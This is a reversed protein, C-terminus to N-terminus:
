GELAFAFRTMVDLRAGTFYLTVKLFRLAVDPETKLMREFNSRDLRWLIADTDVTLTQSRPKEGFLGLEGIFTGPLITEISTHCPIGKPPHDLNRDNDAFNIVSKLVGQEVLLLSDAPDGKSWVLKTGPITIREFYKSLAFCFEQQDTVAIDAFAQMLLPIPQEANSLHQPATMSTEVAENLQNMRPSSALLLAQEKVAPNDIDKREARRSKRFREQQLYYAQLLVNECWELAENLNEFVQLYEDADDCWIGVSRVAKGEDSSASVGSLVMYIGRARLLRRIRIFAEAASFDLGQVTTFDLILFRIPNAEWQRNALLGKIAKEVSGITGFFMYGQLKMICIQDAVQSLFKQQRRFRRVTSRLASGRVVLRLVGRRSNMVVFFVCALVIGVFIGEVFGLAAMLVIIACITVYEFQHVVAFTDVLAEKLLDLGLHFILAGVVMVPIYGVIWPGVFYIILTAFALMVGAVRSDGGSKIFLLSNTYVLYNQVSGAFGSLMNSIGHAVLERNTDVNDENTSVGLAPVNIPVHLIGFFTLALMAPITEALAKWNTARLDYHTYFRWFPADGRPLPFVWGDARLQGIDWGVIGVLVWFVVPIAMFFSPVLLPHNWRKQMARLILALGFPTSWLALKHPDLFLERFTGATYTLPEDLRASVELGTAVLFWGVGGICGVLIHRPFFGILSGLKFAGLVLFVLGTLVTSIAFAMITTAIVEHPRDPGITSTIQDAIIHLFPVVEIMMSGNGGKFVSGGCSYVMQSIFCSVFFMSIGDPGFDTFIPNSLPFTIMSIADLLNLLLGLIVAPIYGIPRILLESCWDRASMSRMQQVMYSLRKTPSVDTTDAHALLTASSSDSSPPLPQQHDPDDEMGPLVPFRDFFDKWFQKRQGPSISLGDPETAPHITSRPEATPFTAHLEKRPHILPTTETPPATPPSSPTESTSAEHKKASSSSFLLSLNSFPSVKPIPSPSDKSTSATSSESGKESGKMYMDNLALSRQRIDQLTASYGNQLDEVHGVASSFYSRSPLYQTDDAMSGRRGGTDTPHSTSIPLADRRRDPQANTMLVTSDFSRHHILPADEEESPDGKLIAM